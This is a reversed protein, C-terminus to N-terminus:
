SRRSGRPWACGSWSSGSASCSSSSHRCPPSSRERIIDALALSVSWYSTVLAVLIFLQGATGAWSGLAASIGTVAVKTVEGPVGLAIAAIAAMLVGNLFLGLLIARVAARRDPSLGKVVQPVSFFTYYGYMAVGYVALLDPVGGSPRWELGFPGGLAGIALVLVVAVLVLAGVREFIGVAKLGFFVVGASAIYVVVEALWPALGTLSTVVEGSASVYAALNALFAVGLFTFVVWTLATGLRGRFVYLRMLEVVQLDQGTRFLVEALLLHTLGSALYALALIVVLWAVGVRDALYPVAMIGAGVGAGVMLFTAEWFTLRRDM